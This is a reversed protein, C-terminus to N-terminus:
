ESLWLAAMVKSLCQTVTHLGGADIQSYIMGEHLQPIDCQGHM